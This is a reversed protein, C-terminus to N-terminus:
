LICSNSKRNVRDLLGATKKIAYKRDDDLWQIYTLDDKKYSNNSRIEEDETYYYEHAIDRTKLGMTSININKRYMDKVRLKSDAWGSLASKTYCEFNDHKIIFMNDNDMGMEKGENEFLKSIFDNFDWSESPSGYIDGGIHVFRAKCGTNLKDKDFLPTKRLNVIFQFPWYHDANWFTM